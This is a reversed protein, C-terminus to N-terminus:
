RCGQDAHARWYRVPECEGRAGAPARTLSKVRPFMHTILPQELPVAVVLV